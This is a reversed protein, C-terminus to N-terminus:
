RGPRPQARSDMRGKLEDNWDAGIFAPRDELFTLDDRGLQHFLGELISVYEDGADDRDVAAVIVSGEQMKSMAQQLLRPQQDNMGGSFSLFRARFHGGIVGYSIADLASESIVAKLDDPQPVSCWIGKRGGKSFSQFGDGKTEYGCLGSDDFHPFVADGSANVRIRAHFQPQALIEPPIGRTDCLYSHHPGLPRFGAYRAQVGLIDREVPRLNPLMRSQQSAKSSLPPTGSPVYGGAGLFARLDRRVQGLNGGRHQQWLDIASGSGPTGRVSFWLYHGDPALGIIIRDGSPHDMCTSGTSTKSDNVEFGLELGIYRLDIRKIQDLEDERSTM